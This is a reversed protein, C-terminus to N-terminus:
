RFMILHQVSIHNEKKKLTILAWLVSNPFAEWLTHCKVWSKFFLCTSEFSLHLFSNCISPVLKPVLFAYCLLASCLLAPETFLSLNHIACLNQVSVKIVWALFCSEELNGGWGKRGRMLLWVALEVGLQRKFGRRDMWSSWRGWSKGLINWSEKKKKKEVKKIPSLDGWKWELTTVSIIKGFYLVCWVVHKSLIEDPEGASILYLGEKSPM